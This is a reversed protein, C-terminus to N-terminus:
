AMLQAQMDTAFEPYPATQYSVAKPRKAFNVKLGGNVELFEGGCLQLKEYSLGMIEKDFNRVFVSGGCAAVACIFTGAEIRAPIVRHCAAHLQSVGEVCIIDTGAGQIKAGM